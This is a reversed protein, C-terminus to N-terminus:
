FVPTAIYTLTATYDKAAEQLSTIEVKYAVTTSGVGMGADNEVAANHYFVEVPNNGTFNGQYTAYGTSTGAGWKSPSSSSVYNDDSTVGWHGYTNPNGMTGTPGAWLTSSAVASNDVFEDITAGNGATLTVDSQVTVSFGNLANTDVRLEQAMLKAVGPAITGFPVSTATTTGSTVTVDNNVTNGAGVANVSFTFITSVDATVTVDDLIVVRTDGEDASPNAGAGDIQIVYSAATAPNNILNGGTTTGVDLVFVTSSAVSDSACMTFDITEANVTVYMESVAGTCSGVAAVQTAGAIIDVDGSTFGTLDFATGTPDFSIRMNELPSFGSTTTFKIRHAANVGLDSDSITDSIQVLGVAEAQHIWAPLGLSWALLALTTVVAIARYPLHATLAVHKM